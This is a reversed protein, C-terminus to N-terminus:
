GTGLLMRAVDASVWGLDMSVTQPYSAPQILPSDDDPLSWREGSWIMPGAQVMPGSPNGDTDLRTIRVHTAWTVPEGKAKRDVYEAALRLVQRRRTPDM